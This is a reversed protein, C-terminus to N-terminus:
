GRKVGDQIEELSWWKADAADDSAILRPPMTMVGKDNMVVIEAFCQAIVYHFSIQTKEDGDTGETTTFHISDTATFAGGSYWDLRFCCSSDNKSIHSSSGTTGGSELQTEEFLERKAADLTDEGSEIKGGPLSWMGKNPEKGRQVLAYHISSSSPLSLVLSSQFRISIAVAARPIVNM